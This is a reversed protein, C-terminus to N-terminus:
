PECTYVLCNWPSHCEVVGPAHVAPAVVMTLLAVPRAAALRLVGGTEANMLTTAVDATAVTGEMDAAM